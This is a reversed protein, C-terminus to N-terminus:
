SLLLRKPTRQKLWPWTPRRSGANRVPFKGRGPPKGHERNAPKARAIFRRQSQRRNQREMRMVERTSPTNENAYISCGKHAKTWLRLGCSWQVMQGPLTEAMLLILELGLWITRLLIYVEEVPEKRLGQLLSLDMMRYFVM